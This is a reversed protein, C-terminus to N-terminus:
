GVSSIARGVMPGGRISRPCPHNHAVQEALQAIPGQMDATQQFLGMQKTASRTDNHSTGEPVDGGCM